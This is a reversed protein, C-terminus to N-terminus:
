FKRWSATKQLCEEVRYYSTTKQLSEEVRYYSATKQLSEEVHYYSATKHLTVDVCYYSATKHLSEEVHYYSATKQLTEDVCYYSATKQLSKKGTVTPLMVYLRCRMKSFIITTPHVVVVNGPLELHEYVTFQLLQHWSVDRDTFFRSFGPM